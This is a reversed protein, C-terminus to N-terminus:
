DNNINILKVNYTSNEVTFLITYTLYSSTDLM